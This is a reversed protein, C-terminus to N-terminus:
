GLRLGMIISNEDGELDAFGLHRYFAMANPNDAAVELHVGPVDRSRLANALDEILARGLGRGRFRDLLDIHLHAPYARVIEDPTRPPQHILRVIEDDATDGGGRRPYRLRLAPWWQAEAWREFTRTDAVALAYGGVGRDDAVVRALDPEGVMYPGVFVHGLLDPDGYRGTADRGADGTQLCVRYAGPLDHLTAHRFPPV